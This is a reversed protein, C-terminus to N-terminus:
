RVYAGGCGGRAPPTIRQYGEGRYVTRVQPVPRSSSLDLRGGADRALMAGPDPRGSSVYWGGLVLALITRAGRRIAKKSLPVVWVAQVVLASRAPSSADKSYGGASVRLKPITSSDM